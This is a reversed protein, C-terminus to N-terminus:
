IKGALQAHGDCASQTLLLIKALFLVIVLYGAVAGCIKTGEADLDVEDLTAWKRSATKIPTFTPVM